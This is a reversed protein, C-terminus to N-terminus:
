VKTMDMKTSEFARDNIVKKFDAFDKSNMIGYQDDHHEIAPKDGYLKKYMM